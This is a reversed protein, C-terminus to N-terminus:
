KKFAGVRSGGNFRSVHGIRGQQDIDLGRVTIIRSITKYDHGADGKLADIYTVMVEWYLLNSSVALYRKDDEVTGKREKEIASYLATVWKKHVKIQSEAESLQANIYRTWGAHLSMLEMLERNDLTDLNDPVEGSYYSHDSRVPRDAPTNRVRLGKSELDLLAAGAVRSYTEEIEEATAALLPKLQM